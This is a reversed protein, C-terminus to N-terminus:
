QVTQETSTLTAGNFWGGTVFFFASEQAAGMYIRSTTASGLSNWANNPLGPLGGACGGGSGSCLSASTGDAATASGGFTYLRDNAAGVGFGALSSKLSTVNATVFTGLDGGVQLQGAEVATDVAVASTRGGGLYIWVSNPTGSSRIINSNNASAVWAGLEARPSSLTHSGAIWDAVTQTNSGSLTVTAVEYTNLYTGSGNRGGIAYLYYTNADSPNRVAVTALGERASALLCDGSSCRAGTVAHWTGLSGPALPGNGAPVTTGTDDIRCQTPDSNCDCISTPTAGCTKEALLQLSSGAAGPTPSRYIRYGHAGAVPSWTLTLAIKETRTPLSVPLLEGTLSEGGPNNANDSPFIAAVGYYYLGGNLGTVGDSLVANLDSIDTTALPDLIEARYLTNTATSGNHGGVLYIFHGIAAAGAWTRPAPLLTRTQASWAGMSGFVDVSASEVSNFVTSGISAQNGSGSVGSDGGIAYLFRSSGTPRGAVLSLARRGMTLSTAAGWPSLNLSSNTLSVASYEYFAGDHNTLKLLCVSGAAVGSAGPDFSATVLAATPSGSLSGNVSTITSASSSAKCELQVSAVDFNRGSIAVVTSANPVLSAPVVSDIAPPNGTTVTVGNSLVGVKGDPNVLIVNYTGATLGSPVVASLQTASTLSVARLAQAIGASGSPTLYVRPIAQLGAGTITVATDANPAVFSPTIKTLLSNDTTDTIHLAGSLEGICGLTSTVRVAYSGASFTPQSNSLGPIHAVIRNPKDNSVVSLSTETAAGDPGVLAISSLASSASLGSTFVTADVSIANYVISPDVFFVLPTPNVTLINTLPPGNCNDANSVVLDYSADAADYPLGTSFTATLATDTTTVTDATVSKADSNRFTVTVGPAFGSGHVIVSFGIKDCVADDVASNVIDISGVTPPAVVHLASMVSLACAPVASNTVLIPLAGASATKGTLDLTATLTNCSSVAGGGAVDLATCDASSAAVQAGAFSLTPGTNGARLFGQGQLTIPFAANSTGQCVNIPVVSAVMLSEPVTLVDARTAICGAPNPNTVEVTPRGAMLASQAVVVNLTTCSEVALGNAAVSSCGALSAVSQVPKGGISVAPLAGAVKLFGSGQIAIAKSADDTCLLAPAASTIAPGAVVTLLDSRKDSCGAPAPNEVEIEPTGASVGGKPLSLVLSDCKRVTLGAVNLDACASPAVATAALAQGDINVSPVTGDVVLFDSGTVTVERASDDVCVLPPEIGALSPPPVIRLAGTATNNCGAPEPNAVSVTYLAPSLEAKGVTITLSSCRQVQKGQVDLAECGDLQDVAFDKNDITVKPKVGDITLFEAGQIVFQKDEETVCGLPPSVREIKPAPVVRLKLDNTSKCAATEPNRLALSPFGNAVSGQALEVSGTRCVEADLAADDVKTCDSLAATFPTSVGDAELAAKMAGNRLFTQGTLTLTRTGQDLCVIGPSLSGVDPKDVVALSQKSTASHGDPNQVQVDWVGAPLVGMAGDSGLTLQQNVVFRMGMQSDWFLLPKGDADFANTKDADPNGSYIIQDTNSAPTGDLDHGRLLTITPLAAKPAKPIDIPIPSFAEGQVTVETTLQDNCLIEPSVPAPNAGL